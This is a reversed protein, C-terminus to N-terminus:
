TPISHSVFCLNSTDTHFVSYQFRTTSIDTFIEKPIEMSCSAVKHSVQSLRLVVAVVVIERPSVRLWM